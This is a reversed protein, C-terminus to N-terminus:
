AAIALTENRQANALATKLNDLHRYDAFSFRDQNELCIIQTRITEVVSLVPRVIVRVKSWVSRLCNAFRTKRGKASMSALVKAGVSLHHTWAQKMIEALNYTM